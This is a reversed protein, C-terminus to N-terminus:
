RASRAGEEEAYLMAAQRAVYARIREADAPTVHRGFRPMGLSALDGDVVARKWLGADQLRGSKRLDPLVGGTIAAIGHCVLCYRGYLQGGQAYEAPTTAITPPKPTPVRRFVIEPKSATGGLKFASVRANIPAGEQPAFFGEILFFATGYGAAVAVYQEHDVEYSIPGALTAAQNDYSWLERGTRADMALFRGDVTGQFVLDGAVALTGGNWPGKRGARWVERQAVPDWAVLAAVTSNRIVRRVQPDDPLSDIVVGLNDVGERHEFPSDTTFGIAMDQM